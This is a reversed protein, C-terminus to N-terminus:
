VRAQVNVSGEAGFLKSIGARRVAASINKIVSQLSVLLSVLEAGDARSMLTKLCHRTLTVARANSSSNSAMASSVFVSRIKCHIVGCNSFFQM